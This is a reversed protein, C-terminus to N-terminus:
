IYVTYYWGNTLQLIAIQMSFVEINLARYNCSYAPLIENEMKISRFIYNNLQSISMM